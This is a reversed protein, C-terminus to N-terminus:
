APWSFAPLQAEIDAISTPVPQTGIIVANFYTYLAGWVQDRLQIAITAETSFAIVSSDKYSTAALLNDYGKDQAFKDLRQQVHLTALTRITEIAAPDVDAIAVPTTASPMMSMPSIQSLLNSLTFAEVQYSVQVKAGSPTQVVRPLERAYHFTAIQPKPDYQVETYWELPEGRNQIHLASVPYELITLGDIRAYTTSPQLPDIM